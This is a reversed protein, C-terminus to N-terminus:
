TDQTEESESSEEDFFSLTIGGLVGVSLMSLMSYKAIPLLLPHKFNSSVGDGKRRAERDRRLEEQTPASTTARWTNPVFPSTTVSILLIALFLTTIIGLIAGFFAGFGAGKLLETLPPMRFYLKKSDHDPNELEEDSDSHSASANYQNKGARRLRGIESGIGFIAGLIWGGAPFFGAWSKWGAMLAITGGIGGIVMYGAITAMAVTGVFQCIPILSFLVALASNTASNPKSM